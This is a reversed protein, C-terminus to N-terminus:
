ASLDKIQEHASVRARLEDPLPTKQGSRYDFAVIIGEGEAAVRNLRQSIVRHQFTMRDVGLATVRTGVLITDPYTVAARYRCQISHLIPSVSTQQLFEILGLQMLYAVRGSELWRIYVANNVHGFADMDGWAVPIEITSGFGDLLVSM